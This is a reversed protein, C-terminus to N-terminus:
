KSGKSQSLTFEVFPRGALIRPGETAFYATEATVYSVKCVEIM